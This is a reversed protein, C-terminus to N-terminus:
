FHLIVFGDALIASDSLGFQITLYPVSPACVAVGSPTPTFKRQCDPHPFLALCSM